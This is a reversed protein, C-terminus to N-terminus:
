GGVGGRVKVPISFIRFKTDKEVTLRSQILTTEFRFLMAVSLFKSSNLIMDEVCKTYVITSSRVFNGGESFFHEPKM